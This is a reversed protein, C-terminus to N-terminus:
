PALAVAAQLRMCEALSQLPRCVIRCVADAFLSTQALRLPRSLRISVLDEIGVDGFRDLLAGRGGRGLVEVRCNLFM